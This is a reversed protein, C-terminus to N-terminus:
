ILEFIKNGDQSGCCGRSGIRKSLLEPVDRSDVPVIFGAKPWEYVNGTINGTYIIRAEVLSQVNKVDYNYTSTKQEAVEHKLVNPKKSSNRVEM